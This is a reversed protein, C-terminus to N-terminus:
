AGDDELGFAFRLAADLQRQASDDLSAIPETLEARRVPVLVDCNVDSEERLGHREDVRVHSPIDRLTTTIMAATVSTLVDLAATRTLIVVPRRGDPLDAWYLDGRKM